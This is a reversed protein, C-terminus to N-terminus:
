RVLVFRKASGVRHGSRTDFYARITFAGVTRVTISTRFSGNARGAVTFERIKRFKNRICHKVRILM